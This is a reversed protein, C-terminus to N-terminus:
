YAHITCMIDYIYTIPQYLGHTVGAKIEVPPYEADVLQLEFRGVLSQLGYSMNCINYKNRDTSIM